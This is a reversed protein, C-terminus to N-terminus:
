TKSELLQVFETALQEEAVLFKPYYEYKEKM